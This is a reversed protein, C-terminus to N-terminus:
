RKPKVRHLSGCIWVILATSSALNRCQSAMFIAHLNFSSALYRFQITTTEKKVPVLYIITLSLLQVCLVYNEEFKCTVSNALASTLHNQERTRICSLPYPLLPTHSSKEEPSLCIDSNQTFPTYIASILPTTQLACKM